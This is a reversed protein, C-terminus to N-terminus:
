VYRYVRARGSATGIQQPRVDQHHIDEVLAGVIVAAEKALAQDIGVALLGAALQRVGRNGLHHARATPLDEVEATGMARRGVGVSRFLTTYPFLTDTRTSRPPRRIM